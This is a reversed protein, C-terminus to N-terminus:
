LNRLKTRIPGPRIEGPYPENETLCISGQDTSSANYTQTGNEITWAWSIVNNSVLPGITGDTTITGTITWGNQDAPYNDISYTIDNAWANSVAAVLVALFLGLAVALATRHSCAASM